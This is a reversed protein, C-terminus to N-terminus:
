GLSSRDLGGSEFRHCEQAIAWDEETHIALVRVKSDIAAIDSNIPNAYNLDRDLALGIFEFDECAAARVMASNEGIGATFVLADVGGLSALMAGIHSRLRHIFLDFALRARENGREMQAVIQRMDNSIGSIGLLGSDHNLVRGLEDM